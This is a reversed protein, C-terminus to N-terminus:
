DLTISLEGAPFKAIDGEYISKAQVLRGFGLTNTGDTIFFHTVEGWTDEAEDFEIDIKNTKYGKGTQTIATEWTASTNAVQVRGYGAQASPETIGTGDDSPTTTSLGIFVNTPGTYVSGGFVHDLLKNELYNSFSM